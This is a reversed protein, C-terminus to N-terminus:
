QKKEVLKQNEIAENAMKKWFGEKESSAIKRFLEDSQQKKEESGTKRLASAFFYLIQDDENEGDIKLISSYIRSVEAWNGLKEYNKAIELLLNRKTPVEKIGFGLAMVIAPGAKETISLTEELTKIAVDYYGLKQNLNSIWYSIKGSMQPSYGYLLLKAKSAHALALDYHGLAEEIIGLLIEKQYALASEETVSQLITRITSEKKQGEKLWLSRAKILSEEAEKLRVDIDDANGGAITRMDRYLSFKSSFNAYDQMVESAMEGLNLDLAAHSLPILFDPILSESESPIVKSYMNYFALAEYKKDKELLSTVRKRLGRVFISSIMKRATKNVSRQLYKAGRESLADGVEYSSLMRMVAMKWYDQYEKTYIEGSGDLSQAEQDLFKLAAAYDLGGHDGCQVLKLRSLKSGVSFPYENITKYYWKRSDTQDVNLRASIEGLRFTARWSMPDLYFNELYKKFEIEAKKYDKLWYFSEARNLYVTKFKKAEEPYFNIGKFYAAIAQDYAQRDVYADGMRLAAEAQYKKESTMKIIKEYENAAKESQKLYYFSEAVGFQFVWVLNHEKHNQKLWLFRELSELYKQNKFSSIALYIGSYLAISSQKNNQVLDLFLQKASKEHGLRIHANAMLFKMELFYQTQTYKKELFEVTKIALAFNGEEYLKLATRVHQAEEENSTPKFYTFNKDPFNLSFWPEFDFKEHVAFFNLFIENKEDFPGNCFDTLNGAKEIQESILQRREQRKKALEKSVKIEEEQKLKKQKAQVEAQTPGKQQWFDVVLRSPDKQRFEFRNMKHAAPALDGTLYKWKGIIKVKGKEEKINLSSLRYDQIDSFQRLWKEEYGFPAGLDALTSGELVLEFGDSKENWTPKFTDDLKFVLRSHTPFTELNIVRHEASSAFLITCIFLLPANIFLVRFVRVTKFAIFNSKIVM